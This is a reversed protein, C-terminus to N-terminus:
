TSILDAESFFHAAASTVAGHVTVVWRQLRRGCHYRVRRARKLGLKSVGADPVLGPAERDLLPTTGAECVGRELSSESGHMVGNKRMAQAKSCAYITSLLGGDPSHDQHDRAHTHLPRPSKKRRVRCGWVKRTMGERSATYSARYGLLFRGAASPLCCSAGRGGQRWAANVGMLLVLLRSDRKQWDDGCGPGCGRWQWM